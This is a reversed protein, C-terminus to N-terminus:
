LSEHSMTSLRPPPVSPTMPRRAFIHKLRLSLEHRGTSGVKRKLEVHRACAIACMIRPFGFPVIFPPTGQRGKLSALIWRKFEDWVGPLICESLYTKRSKKWHNTNLIINIEQVELSAEDVQVKVEWLSSTNQVPMAWSHAALAESTLRPQSSAEVSSAAAAGAEDKDAPETPEMPETPKLKEVETMAFFYQPGRRESALSCVHIRLDKHQGNRKSVNLNLPVPIGQQQAMEKASQLVTQLRQHDDEEVLELFSRGELSSPPKQFFHALKPSVQLLRMDKDLEGQADCSMATVSRVAQLSLGLENASLLVSIWRRAINEIAWPIMLICITVCVEQVFIAQGLPQYSAFALLHVRRASFLVNICFGHRLDFFVISGIIRGIMVFPELTADPSFALSLTALNFGYLLFLIERDGFDLLGHHFIACISQWVVLSYAHYLEDDSLSEKGFAVIRVSYLALLLLGLAGCADMVMQVISRRLARFQRNAEQAVEDSCPVAGTLNCFSASPARPGRLYKLDIFFLLLTVLALCLGLLSM